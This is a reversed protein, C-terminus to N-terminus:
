LGRASFISNGKFASISGKKGTFTVAGSAHFINDEIRHDNCRILSLIVDGNHNIFINNRITNGGKYNMHSLLASPCNVTINGEVVWGNAQEDIYLAHRQYNPLVPPPTNEVINNGMVGKNSFTVYIGAGDDLITMSTNVRNRVILKGDSGGGSVIGSYTTNSINNEIIDCGNAYIGIASYHVLGTNDIRNGTVTCDKGKKIMIGGAGSDQVLCRDICVDNNEGNLRIGWGGVNNFRLGSFTGRTLNGESDLAGTVGVAGYTNPIRDRIFGNGVMPSATTMFTINKITLDTVAGNIRIISDYLPIYTCVTRMDEGPLARYYIVRANKDIRWHGPEIGWASNWVAFDYVEFSGPPNGCPTQFEIIHRDPDHKGACVFSEDWRHMVTIETDNWDFDAPIEDPNYILQSRQTEEPMEAFVGGSTSLWPINFKSMHRAFGSKPFRTRAKLEGNIELIRGNIPAQPPLRLSYLDSGEKQWIGARVGGRLVAEKKEGSILLGNDREDLVAYINDYNGGGLIIVKDHSARTEEVARMLTMFPFTVTGPNLDNGTPSIFYAM